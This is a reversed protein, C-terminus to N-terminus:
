VNFTTKVYENSAFSLRKSCGRGGSACQWWNCGMEFYHFLLISINKESFLVEPLYQSICVPLPMKFGQWITLFYQACGSFVVQYSTPIRVLSRNIDRNHEVVNSYAPDLVEHVSPTHGKGSTGVSLRLKLRLIGRHWTVSARVCTLCNTTM